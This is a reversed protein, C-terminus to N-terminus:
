WRNMLQNLRAKADRFGLQRNQEHKLERILLQFVAERILQARTTGRYEALDDLLGIHRRNMRITSIMLDKRTSNYRQKARGKKM